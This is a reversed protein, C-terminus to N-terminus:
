SVEKSQQNSTSTYSSQVMNDQICVPLLACLIEESIAKVSYIQEDHFFYSCCHIIINKKKAAMWCRKSDQFLIARSDVAFWLFQTHFWCFCRFILDQRWHIHEHVKDNLLHVFVRTECNSLLLCFYTKIFSIFLKDSSHMLRSDLSSSPNHNNM